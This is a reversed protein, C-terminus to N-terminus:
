LPRPASSADRPAPQNPRLRSWAMRMPSTGTRITVCFTDIHRHINCAPTVRTCVTHVTYAHWIINIEREIWIKSLSRGVCTHMICRKNWGSVLTCKRGGQACYNTSLKTKQYVTQMHKIHQLSKIATANLHERVVRKWVPEALRVGNWQNRWCFLM